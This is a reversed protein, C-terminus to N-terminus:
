SHDKYERPSMGTHQKFYKGFFSQNAFNLEEAIQQITNASTKLLTKAEIIVFHDIWERPLKGSADKVTASLYKPTLFLKDAYFSVTRNYKYNNVLVKMFSEFIEEKRTKKGDNEPSHIQYFGSVEYFLAHLINQIILNRYVLGEERVKRRLLNHYELLLEIESDTLPTCPNNKFYMFVALANKLDLRSEEMLKPSLLLFRGDFDESVSFLQMVQSPRIVCLENKTLRSRELDLGFEIEGNLCLAFIVCEIKNPYDSLPVNKIDNLVALDSSITDKPHIIKVDGLTIKGMETIPRHIETICM